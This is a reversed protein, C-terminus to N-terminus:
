RLHSQVFVGKAHALKIGVTILMPALAANQFRGIVPTAILRPFILMFLGHILKGLANQVAVKRKASSRAVESDDPLGGLFATL